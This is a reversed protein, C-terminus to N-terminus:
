VFYQITTCQLAIFWDGMLNRGCSGAFNKIMTRWSYSHNWQLVFVINDFTQDSFDKIFPREQKKCLPVSIQRVPRPELDVTLM